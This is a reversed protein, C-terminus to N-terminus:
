EKSLACENRGVELESMEEADAEKVGLNVLRITSYEAPPEGLHSVVYSVFEGEDTISVVPDKELLDGLRRRLTGDELSELRSTYHAPLVELNPDLPALKHRITHFLDKAWPETEGGLDPRGVGSVFVADGTLLYKGDVELSTSGPTHGPTAVSRVVLDMDGFTFVEGDVLPEYDFAAEIADGESIHYTAGTLQRLENALSIHDAHLHTDFIDSIECGLRDALNLYTKADAAPDVVAMNSNRAGVVYSLCAKATRDLQIVFHHGDDYITRPVLTVAWADMGGSLNHMNDKGVVEVVLDSSDGHACVVVVRRDDPLMERMRDDEEIATWYPINVTEVEAKGEIQWREYQDPARVDLIFPADDPSEIIEALEDTSIPGSM